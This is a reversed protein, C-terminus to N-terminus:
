LLARAQYLNLECAGRADDPLPKLFFGDPTALASTRGEARRLRTRV